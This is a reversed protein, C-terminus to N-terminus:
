PCPAPRTDHTVHRGVAVGRMPFACTWAWPRVKRAEGESDIKCLGAWQGLTQQEPVSILNVSQEACLAEILKKYDPQNCDEALICLQAEGQPLPARWCSPCVSASVPCRLLAGPSSPQRASSLSLSQAHTPLSLRAAATSTSSLPM